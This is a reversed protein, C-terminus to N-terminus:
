LAKFPNPVSVPEADKFTKMVSDPCSGDGRGTYGGTPACVYAGQADFLPNMRDCCPATLLYYSKANLEYRLATQNLRYFDEDKPPMTDSRVGAKPQDVGSSLAGDTSSCALLSLSLVSAGVSRNFFSIRM